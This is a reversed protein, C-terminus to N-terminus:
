ANLSVDGINSKESNNLYWLTLLGTLFFVSISLIALKQSGTTVSVVGFLIPGVISSARSAFSNFGFFETSDERNQLYKAIIARGLAPTTGIVLGVVCSLIYFQSVSNVIYFLFGILIWLLVSGVFVKM